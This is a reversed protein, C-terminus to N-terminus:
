LSVSDFMFFQGVQRATMPESVRFALPDGDKALDEVLKGAHQHLVKDTDLLGLMKAVKDYAEGIADDVTTGLQTYQGVDHAIALM